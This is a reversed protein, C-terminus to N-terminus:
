PIFARDALIAAITKGVNNSKKPPKQEPDVPNFSGNSYSYNNPDYM